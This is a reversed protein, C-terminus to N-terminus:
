KKLQEELAEIEINKEEIKKDLETIDNNISEIEEKIELVIEMYDYMNNTENSNLSDLQMDKRQLTRLKNIFKTFQLDEEKLQKYNLELEKNYRKIENQLKKIKTKLESNFVEKVKRSKRKKEVNGRLKKLTKKGLVSKRYNNAKKKDRRARIINNRTNQKGIM